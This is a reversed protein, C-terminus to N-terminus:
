KMKLRTSVIEALKAVTLTKSAESVNEGIASDPIEVKFAEEVAMVIEVLDLEDAGQVVLPKMVDIQASDKKLITAVEARVRNVVKEPTQEMRQRQMAKAREAARMLGPISILMLLTLIGCICTGTMAKGFIGQRGHRKTGVLAVIGFVLGLVILLMSTVGFIMMAWRNGRVQPQLVISIGIAVFPAVVSFTAAQSPFSSAPRVSAPLQPPSTPLPPPLPTDM